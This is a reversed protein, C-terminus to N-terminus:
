QSQKPPAPQTETPDGGSAHQISEGGSVWVPDASRLFAAFERFDHGEVAFPLRVQETQRPNSTPM